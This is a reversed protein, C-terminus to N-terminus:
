SQRLPKEGFRARLRNAAELLDPDLALFKVLGATSLGLGRAADSVKGRAADLRDLVGAAAALYRPSRRSIRPWAPDALAEALDGAPPAAVSAPERVRLAIARRLRALAAARNEHQSRREAASVVVGTPRHTLRVASETKNRHQGGPGSARYTEVTCQGLLAADAARLFADRGASM